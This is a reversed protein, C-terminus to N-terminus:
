ARAGPDLFRGIRGLIAERPLAGRMTELLVGGRFFLLTPVAEIGFRAASARSMDVNVKCIKLKGAMEYALQELVPALAQCPGCRPSWFDVLVPLPSRSVEDGFSEDTVAIPTVWPPPLPSKCRGCLPEQHLREFQVRNGAGCKTCRIIMSDGAM